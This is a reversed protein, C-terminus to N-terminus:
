GPAAGVEDALARLRKWTDDDVAIGDRKKRQAV